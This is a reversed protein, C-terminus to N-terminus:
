ETGLETEENIASVLYQSMKEVYGKAALQERNWQGNQLLLQGIKAFEDTRLHLADLGM